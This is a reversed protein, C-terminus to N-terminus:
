RTTLHFFAAELDETGTEALIENLTGLAKIEGDHIIAIRDCLTEAERLYHTSFLITHGNKKRCDRIFDIIHRAQVPDLGSTPEDFIMLQPEHVIARSISVRQRQGTSLKGIKTDLFEGLGFLETLEEVRRAITQKDLGGLGGYYRIIEKATLRVYLNTDGSLYGITERVESPQTVIDYGAVKATGESPSLITALMRLTTTKGAGNTGLMGFIEGEKVKLNIHNVATIKGRKRDEFFKTLNETQIM